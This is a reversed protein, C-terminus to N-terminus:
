LAEERAFRRTISRVACISASRPCLRLCTVGLGGDPPERSNEVFTDWGRVWLQSENGAASVRDRLVETNSGRVPRSTPKARASDLTLTASDLLEDNQGAVQRSRLHTQNKGPSTHGTSLKM